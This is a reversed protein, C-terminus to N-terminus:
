PHYFEYFYLKNKGRGFYFNTPLLCLTVAVQFSKKNADKPDCIKHFKFFYPWQFQDADLNGYVFWTVVNAELGNYFSKFFNSARNSALRGVPM